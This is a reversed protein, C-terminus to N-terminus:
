ERVKRNQCAIQLRILKQKRLEKKPIYIVTDLHKSSEWIMKRIREKYEEETM